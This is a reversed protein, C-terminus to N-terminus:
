NRTMKSTKVDINKLEKKKKKEINSVIQFIEIAIAIFNKKKILYCKKRKHKEITYDCVCVCVCM